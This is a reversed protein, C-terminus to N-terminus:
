FVESPASTIGETVGQPNPSNSDVPPSLVPIESQKRKLVLPASQTLQVPSLFFPLSVFFLFFFFSLAFRNLPGQSSKDPFCLVAMAIRHKLDHPLQEVRRAKGSM